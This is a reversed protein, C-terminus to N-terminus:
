ALGGSVEILMSASDNPSLASAKLYDFVSEYRRVESPEELYVASTMNELYVIDMDSPAPFGVISFSGTLAAHEGARFPLVQIMVNPRRNANALHRLQDARIAPTGVHQHIVAESIIASLNFASEDLREQRKLRVAVLRDIEEPSDSPRFATTIARTYAETQLLGPVLSQEYNRVTSAEAELGILTAYESPLVNGYQQWWGKQQAERALSLLTERETETVDYLDLLIRLDRPRIGRRGTEIRSLSAATMDMREAVLQMSMDRETRLRRLEAALRRRRVTPSTEAPM